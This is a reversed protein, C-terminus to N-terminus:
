KSASMKLVPEGARYEKRLNRIVLSPAANPGASMPQGSAPVEM